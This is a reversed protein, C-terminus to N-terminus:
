NSKEFRMHLAKHLRLLEDYEKEIQKGLSDYCSELEMYEKFNQESLLKNVKTQLPLYEANIKLELAEKYELVQIYAEEKTM